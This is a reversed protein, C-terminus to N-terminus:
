EDAVVLAFELLGTERLTRGELDALYDGNLMEAADAECMKATPFSKAVANMSAQRDESVWWAVFEGVKVDNGFEKRASSIEITNM